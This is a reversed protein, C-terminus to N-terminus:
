DMHELAYVVLGLLAGLGLFGLGAAILAVTLFAGAAKEGPLRVHTPNRPDYLIEVRDGERYRAPRSGWTSQAEVPEGGPLDFRVVPFADAPHGRWQLSVVTASAPRAVLAFRDGGHRLRHALWILGAGIAMLAPPIAVVM